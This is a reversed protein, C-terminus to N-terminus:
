YVKFNYPTYINSFVLSIQNSPFYACAQQTATHDKNENDQDDENDEDADEDISSDSDDDFCSFPDEEVLNTRKQQSKDDTSM